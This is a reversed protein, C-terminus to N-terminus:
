PQATEGREKDSRSDDKRNNALRNKNAESHKNGNKEGNIVGNRLNEDIEDEKDHIQSPTLFSIVGTQSYVFQAIYKVFHYLTEHPEEVNKFLSKVEYSDIIFDHSPYDEVLRRVTDDKPNKSHKALRDGYEKGICLDRYDSGIVDPNLQGFVPGLLEATLQSAIDSALKFTVLNGSAGKIGLMTKSLLQFVERTLSEFASRMLLGSKRAGIEDKDYLQVDLPGLESFSDMILRHAGLAILTGASKCYRPCYVIFEKYESQFLRAIKYASNASGGTTTLILLAKDKENRSKQKYISATIESFADNDIAASCVIIDANYYDEVNKLADLFAETMIEKM